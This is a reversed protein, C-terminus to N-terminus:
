GEAPVLSGIVDKPVWQFTAHEGHGMRVLVTAENQDVIRAFVGDYDEGPAFLFTEFGILLM